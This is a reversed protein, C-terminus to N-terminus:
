VPTRPAGGVGVVGYWRMGLAKVATRLSHLERYLCRRMAGGTHTRQRTPLSAPWGSVMPAGVVLAEEWWCCFSSSRRSPRWRACRAQGRGGAGVPRSSGRSM